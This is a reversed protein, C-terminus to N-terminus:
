GPMIDWAKTMISTDKIRLPLASGPDAHAAKNLGLIGWGQSQGLVCRNRVDAHPRLRSQRRPTETSIEFYLL